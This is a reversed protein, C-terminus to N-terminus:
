NKEAEGEGDVAEKSPAKSAEEELNGNVFQILVLMQALRISRLKEESLSPIVRHLHVVSKEINQALDLEGMGELEKAEKQAILFDEVTMDVLPHEVGDLTVTRITGVLQDLNLTKM